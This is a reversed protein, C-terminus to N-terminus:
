IVSAASFVPMAFAVPAEFMRGREVYKELLNQRAIGMFPKHSRQVSQHQRQYCIAAQIGASRASKNGPAAEPPRDVSM